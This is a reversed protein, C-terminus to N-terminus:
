LAEIVLCQASRGIRGREDWLAAEALGVGTPEPTTTADLGIWEGEPMRHLLLTLDANIFSFRTMDLGVSVGNGTDVITATRVLPSPEEGAVLPVRLRIWATMAGQGFAGRALRVEVARHYAVPWRFFPFEFPASASPAPPAEARSPPSELPLDARRVLLASASAVVQGEASLTARVFSVKRGPRTTEVAVDVPRIPIPRLLDFGIRAVTMPATQPHHEIARALLGAPPGGHQHEASWPGRTLETPVFRAPDAPDRSFFAAEPPASM